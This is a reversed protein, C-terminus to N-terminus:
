PQCDVIGYVGAQFFHPWFLPDLTHWLSEPASLKIIVQKLQLAIWTVLFKQRFNVYPYLCHQSPHSPSQLKLAYLLTARSHKQAVMCSSQIKLRNGNREGMYSQLLKTKCRRQRNQHLCRSTTRSIGVWCTPLLWCSSQLIERFCSLKGSSSAGAQKVTLLRKM